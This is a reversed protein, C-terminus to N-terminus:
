QKPLSHNPQNNPRITTAKISTPPFQAPQNNSDGREITPIGERERISMGIPPLTPSYVLVLSLLAEEQEEPLNEFTRVKFM